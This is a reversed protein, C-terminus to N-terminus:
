FSQDEYQSVEYNEICRDNIVDQVYEYDDAFLDLMTEISVGRKEVLYHVLEYTDEGDEDFAPKEQGLIQEMSSTTEGKLIPTGKTALMISIILNVVFYEDSWGSSNVLEM